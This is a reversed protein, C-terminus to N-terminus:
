IMFKAALRHDGAGSISPCGYPLGVGARLLGARDSFFPLFRMAVISIAAPASTLMTAVNFM